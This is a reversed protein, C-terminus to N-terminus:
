NIIFKYFEVEGVNCHTHYANIIGGMVDSNKGLFYYSYIGMDGVSM